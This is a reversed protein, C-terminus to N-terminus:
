RGFLGFKKDSGAWRQDADLWGIDRLRAALWRLAVESQAVRSRHREAALGALTVTVAIQLDRARLREAPRITPQRTSM